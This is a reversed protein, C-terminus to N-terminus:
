RPGPTIRTVGERRPDAVAQLAGDYTTLAAGVGGFYMTPEHEVRVDEDPLGARHVHVRPHAVAEALDLGGSVFGALASVIATLPGRKIFATGLGSVNNIVPGDPIPLDTRSCLRAPSYPTASSKYTPAFLLAAWRGPRRLACVQKVM